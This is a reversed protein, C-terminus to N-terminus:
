QAAGGEQKAPAAAPKGEVQYLTVGAKRATRVIEEARSAPVEVGGSDITLKDDVVYIDGPYATRLVPKDAM